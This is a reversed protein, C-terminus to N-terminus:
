WRFRVSINDKPNYKTLYDQISESTILVDSINMIDTMMSHINWNILELSDSASTTYKERVIQDFEYQVLISLILLPLAAAVSVVLLIKYRFKGIKKLWM